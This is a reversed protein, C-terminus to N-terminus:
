PHNGAVNQSERALLNPTASVCRETFTWWQRSGWKQGPGAALLADVIPRLSFPSFSLSLSPASRCLSRHRPSRPPQWAFCMLLRLLLLLAVAAAAVAVARISIPLSRALSCRLFSPLSSAQSGMGRERQKQSPLLVVPWLGMSWYSIASLTHCGINHM